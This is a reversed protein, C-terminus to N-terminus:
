EIDLHEDKLFSDMFETLTSVNFKFNSSLHKSICMELSILVSLFCALFLFLYGLRKDFNIQPCFCSFLAFSIEFFSYVDTLIYMYKETFFLLFYCRLIHGPSPICEVAGFIHKM